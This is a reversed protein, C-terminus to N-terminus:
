KPPGSVPTKTSSSPLGTPLGGADASSRADLGPAGSSLPLGGDSSSGCPSRGFWHLRAGHTRLWRRAPGPDAGLLTAVLAHFQPGHNMHIRHAVEHAVTARRVFDPALILRWSFRLDGSASCSGWRSVPDGVGIRGLTVGLRDALERSESDLLTQAESKLWRLIRPALTDHPGGAQLTSGARRPKRPLNASWALTLAEGAFPVSMGPHIPQPDPLAALQAEVWGRKSEAWRQADGLGARRPITLRVSGDAPSVVLRMQRARPSRVVILPRVHRGGSFVSAGEPKSSIIKWIARM